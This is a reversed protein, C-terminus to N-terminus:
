QWTLEYLKDGVSAIGEGFFEDTLPHSQQVAGTKADVRRLGSQGKQGTSEYFVGDEYFLGETFAKPDHPFVNVVRYTYLKPAILHTGHVPFSTTVPTAAALPSPAQAAPASTARSAQATAQTTAPTTKAPTATPVPAATLTAQNPLKWVLVAGFVILALM